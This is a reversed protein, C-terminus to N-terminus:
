GSYDDILLGKIIALDRQYSKRDDVFKRYQDPTMDFLGELNCIGGSLDPKIYELFSSYVWDEPKKTLAASTANLHLYRTLHLLQEDSDVLVNQFRGSWLPGSRHHIQNFYKAYSNLLRSMYKTIGDSTNQKLILHLHTPMISYSIIDILTENQKILRSIIESQTSIDLKKFQSYRHRFDIFRFLNILELM